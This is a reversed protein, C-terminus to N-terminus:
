KESNDVNSKRRGGRRKIRTKGKNKSGETAKPSSNYGQTEKLFDKSFEDEDNFPVFTNQNKMKQDM